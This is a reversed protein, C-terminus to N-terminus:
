NGFLLLVLAIVMLAYGSSQATDSLSPLPDYFNVWSGLSGGMKKVWRVWSGLSGGMKKVWTVWSGHSGGM